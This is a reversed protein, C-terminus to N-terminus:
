LGGKTRARTTKQTGSLERERKRRSTNKDARKTALTWVGNIQNTTNRLNHLLIIIIIIIFFFFFFYVELVTAEDRLGLPPSGEVLGGGLTSDL